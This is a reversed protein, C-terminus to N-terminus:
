KSVKVLGEANRCTHQHERVRIAVNRGLCVDSGKMCDGVDNHETISGTNRFSPM